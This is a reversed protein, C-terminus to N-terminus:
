RCFFKIVKKWWKMEFDPCNNKGNRASASDKLHEARRFPTDEIVVNNPHACDVWNVHKCNYCYVKEM